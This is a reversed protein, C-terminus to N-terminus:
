VMIHVNSKGEKGRTKALKMQCARKVTRGKPTDERAEDSV